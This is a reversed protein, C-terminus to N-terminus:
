RLSTPIPGNVRRIQEESFAGFGGKEEVKYLAYITLLGAACGLLETWFCREEQQVAQQKKRSNQNM